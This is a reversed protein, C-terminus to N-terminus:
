YIDLRRQALLPLENRIKNVYDFDISCISYGEEENMHSIVEGFPSVVISNAYSIYSANYDRAPACGITYVQNDVARSRFLLEWHAPGTSMNFAAPVIIAKAGNDVMLRSLEPFRFDYCICLGIKGFKTDFVTAKDGADLTDSEKFSQGNEMDIDFLHAKRHKAIKNGLHDFVYSTNFLNGNDDKEPISGAVLYINNKKAIKSLLSYSMDGEKEAYLSFNSKDYPCSFMEPLVVIDAYDKASKRIFKDAKELNKVKDKEVLMQITAIKIKNM